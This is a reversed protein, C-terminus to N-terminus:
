CPAHSKVLSFHRFFLSAKVHNTSHLSVGTQIEGLDAM